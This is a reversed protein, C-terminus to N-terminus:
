GRRVVVTGALLDHLGRREPTFAIMLFGAGVLAFSALYGVWRLAARTLEIREGGEAPRVSLGLLAKGPTAGFRSWGIVPVLVGLLLSALGGVVTRLSGDFPLALLFCALGIWVGDVLVAVLRRWFGAPRGPARAPAVRRQSDATTHLAM